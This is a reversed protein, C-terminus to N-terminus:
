CATNAAGNVCNSGGVSLCIENLRLNLQTHYMEQLNLVMDRYNNMIM